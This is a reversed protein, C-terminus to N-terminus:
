ERQFANQANSIGIQSRVWAYIRARDSVNRKQKAVMKKPVNEELFQLDRASISEPKFVTAAHFQAHVGRNGNGVIKRNKPLETNCSLVERVDENPCEKGEKTM